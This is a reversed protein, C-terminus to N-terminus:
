YNQWSQHLQTAVFLDNSPRVPLDRARNLFSFNLPDCIVSTFIQNEHIAFYGKKCYFFHKFFTFDLIALYLYIFLEPEERTM